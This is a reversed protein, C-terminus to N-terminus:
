LKGKSGDLHVMQLVPELLKDRWQAWNNQQNEANFIKVLGAMQLKEQNAIGVWPTEQLTISKWEELQELSSQTSENEKAWEQLVSELQPYQLRLLKLWLRSICVILSILLTTM